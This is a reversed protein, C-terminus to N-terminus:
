KERAALHVRNKGNWVVWVNHLIVARRMTMQTKSYIDETKAPIVNTDQNYTLKSPVTIGTYWLVPNM